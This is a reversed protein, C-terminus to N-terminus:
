ASSEQLLSYNLCNLIRCIKFTSLNVRLPETSSWAALNRRTNRSRKAPYMAADTALLMKPVSAFPSSFSGIGISFITRWGHKQMARDLEFHMRSLVLAATERDAAPLLIQSYHLGGPDVELIAGPVAELPKRFGRKM